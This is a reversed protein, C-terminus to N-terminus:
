DLKMNGGAAGGLSIDIEHKRRCCRGLSILKMNGGANESSILKMNGYLM